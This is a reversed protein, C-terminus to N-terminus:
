CIQRFRHQRSDYEQDSDFQNVYISHPANTRFAGGFEPDGQERSRRNHKDADFLANDQGHKERQQHVGPVAIM